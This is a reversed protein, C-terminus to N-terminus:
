TATREAANDKDGDVASSFNKLLLKDGSKVVAPAAPAAKAACEGLQGCTKQPSAVPFGLDVFGVMINWLTEILARKQELPADSKELFREYREWDITLAPLPPSQEACGSSDSDSDRERDSKGKHM